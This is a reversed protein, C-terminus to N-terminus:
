WGEGSAVGQLAGRHACGDDSQRVWRGAAGVARGGIRWVWACACERGVRACACERGVRACACVRGVHRVLRRATHTHTYAQTRTGDSPSGLRRRMSKTLSRSTSMVHPRLGSPSLYRSSFPTLRGTGSSPWSAGSGSPPFSSISESRHRSSPGGGGHAVRWVAVVRWWEMVGGAPLGRRTAAGDGYQRVDAGRAACRCMNGRVRQPRQECVSLGRRVCVCMVCVCSVCM